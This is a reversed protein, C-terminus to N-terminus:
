GIMTRAVVAVAIVVITTGVVPRRRALSWVSIAIVLRGTAAHVVTIIVMARRRTVPVMVIIVAVIRTPRVVRREGRAGRRNLLRIWTLRCWRPMSRTSIILLGGGIRRMRRHILGRRRYRCLWDLGAVVMLPGIPLRPVIRRGPRCCRPNLWCGRGLRLGVLTVEPRFWLLRVIARTMRRCGVRSYTSRTRIIRRGPGFWGM